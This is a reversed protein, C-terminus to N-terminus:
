LKVDFNDSIARDNVEGEKSKKRASVTRCAYMQGMFPRCRRSKSDPGLRFQSGRSSAASVPLLVAGAMRAARKQLVTM